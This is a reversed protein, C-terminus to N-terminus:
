APSGGAQDQPRFASKEPHNPNTRILVTRGKMSEVFQNASSEDDFVNWLDGSYYENNVSYSYQMTVEFISHSRAAKEAITGSEVRGQTIPWNAARSSQIIKWVFRHGVVGFVIASVVLAIILGDPSGAALTM